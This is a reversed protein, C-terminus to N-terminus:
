ALSVVTGLTVKGEHGNFKVLGRRRMDRLQDVIGRSFGAALRLDRITISKSAESRLVRLVAEDFLEPM